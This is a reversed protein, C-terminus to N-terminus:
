ARKAVAGLGLVTERGLEASFAQVVDELTRGLSFVEARVTVPSGEFLEPAAYRPTIGQAAAGAERFAVVLGLDVLTASGDEAVIINAPKIDGHLLRARHLLTLEEAVSAVARLARSAARADGPSEIMSALSEGHVLERVLFPSGGELRGFRLVRPVGLGELGSLAAAERVLADAEALEGTAGLTKLAVLEGTVRDRVTWVEGGGGSGLREVPAFRPPFAPTRTM